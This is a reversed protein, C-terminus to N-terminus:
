SSGHRLKEEYAALLEDANDFGALALAARNLALDHELCVPVHRNGNACISWSAHARAECGAFGCALRRVGADSYPERRGHYRPRAPM